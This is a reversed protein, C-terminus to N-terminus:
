MSFTMLNRDKIWYFQVIGTCTWPSIIESRTWPSQQVQMFQFSAEFDEVPYMKIRFFKLGMILSITSQVVSPSQEKQRLEKLETLFKKKVAAFRFLYLITIHSQAFVTWHTHSRFIGDGWRLRLIYVHATSNMQLQDRPGFQVLSLIRWSSFKVALKDRPSMCADRVRQKLAQVSSKRLSPSSVMILFSGRVLFLVSNTQFPHIHAAHEAVM